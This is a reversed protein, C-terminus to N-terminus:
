SHDGVDMHGVFCSRVDSEAGILFKRMDLARFVCRYTGIVGLVLEAEMYTFVM